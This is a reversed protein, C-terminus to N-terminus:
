RTAVTHAAHVAEAFASLKAPDKHGPSREVGSAVDVAFPQVAAIADAVNEPTLGGAIILRAKCGTLAKRASQWDFTKGSGAGSDLLWTYGTGVAQLLASGRSESGEQM